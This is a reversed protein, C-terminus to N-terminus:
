GRQGGGVCFYYFCLLLAFPAELLDSPDDCSGLREERFVCFKIMIDLINMRPFFFSLQVFVTTPQFEGYRVVQLMSNVSVILSFFHFISKLNKEFGRSTM